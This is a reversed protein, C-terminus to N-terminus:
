AFDRGRNVSVPKKKYFKKGHKESMEWIKNFWRIAGAKSVFVRGQQNPSTKSYPLRLLEYHYGKITRVGRGLHQAIGKWGFLYHFTLPKIEDM